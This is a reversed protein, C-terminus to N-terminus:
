GELDNIFKNAIVIVDINKRATLASKKADSISKLDANIAVTRIINEDFFGVGDKEYGDKVYPATVPIGHNIFAAVSGSKGLLHRPVPTIGLNCNLLEASVGKVDLFGTHTITCNIDRVKTIQDIFTKARNSNGGIITINLKLNSKQCALSLEKLFQIIEERYTVQSFFGVNFYGDDNAVLAGALPINSLVPLPMAKVGLKQLRYAYVPVHTHSIKPKLIKHMLGIIKRQLFALLLGKNNKDEVWLEHHMIHVKYGKFVPKLLYPLNFPLGKDNYAYPVFQLSLWDPNFKAVIEKIKLVRNKWPTSSSLRYFMTSENDENEDNVIHRDNIAIIKCTHGQKVLETALLATYDGVGDQGPQLSGCLFIIKM